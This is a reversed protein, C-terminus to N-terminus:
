PEGADAPPKGRGAGDRKPTRLVWVEAAFRGAGKRASIEVTVADDELACFPRDPQVIPWADEGGDTAIVVGRSSRIAVDLDAVGRDAAAFVRYCEGQVARFGEAAAPQGEAVAGEFAQRSLRRMGNEPGCLISLRTVDKLPEGSLRFNGYCRVWPGGVRVPAPVAEEAEKAREPPPSGSPGAPPKAGEDAASGAGFLGIPGADGPPRASFVPAPGTQGEWPRPDDRGCSLAACALAACALAACALAARALKSRPRPAPSM